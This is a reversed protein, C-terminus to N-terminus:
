FTFIHVVRIIYTVFDNDPDQPDNLWLLRTWGNDDELHTISEKYRHLNSCILALVRIGICCLNNMAHSYLCDNM